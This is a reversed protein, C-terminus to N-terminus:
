PAASRSTLWPSKACSTSPDRGGPHGRRGQHRKRRPVALSGGVRHSLTTGPKSNAQNESRQPEPHPAGYDGHRAQPGGGVEAEGRGAWRPSREGERSQLRVSASQGVELPSGLVCHFRVEPQPQVSIRQMRPILWIESVARTRSQPVSPVCATRHTEPWARVGTHGRQGYVENGLMCLPLTPILNWLWNRSLHDYRHSGRCLGRSALRDSGSLPSMIGLM